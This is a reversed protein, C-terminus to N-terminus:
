AGRPILPYDLAELLAVWAESRTRRAVWELDERRYAALYNGSTYHTARFPRGTPRAHFTMRSRPFRAAHPSGPHRALSFARGVREMQAIAGLPEFLDEARILLGQKPHLALWTLYGSYAAFYRDLPTPWTYHPSTLFRPFGWGARFHPCGNPDVGSRAFRWMAELWALPGRACVLCLIPRGHADLDRGSQLIPGHKWERRIEVSCTHWSDLVGRLVANTATRQLGFMKFARPPAM